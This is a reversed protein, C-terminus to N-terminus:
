FSLSKAVSIFACEGGQHGCVAGWDCWWGRRRLSTFVIGLSLVAPRFLWFSLVSTSTAASSVFLRTLLRSHKQQTTSHSYAACYIHVHTPKLSKLHCHVCGCLRWAYLYVGCHGTCNNVLPRSLNGFLLLGAKNGEPSALAPVSLSANRFSFLFKPRRVLKQHKPSCTRQGVHHRVHFCTNCFHFSLLSIQWFIPKWPKVAAGASSFM